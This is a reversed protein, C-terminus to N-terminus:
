NYKSVSSRVFVVPIINKVRQIVCKQAGINRSSVPVDAKRTPCLFLLFSNDAKKNFRPIQSISSSNTTALRPQFKFGAKGIMKKKVKKESEATMIKKATINCRGFFQISPM